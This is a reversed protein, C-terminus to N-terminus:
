SGTSDGRGHLKRQHAKLGAYSKCLKGCEECQFFEQVPLPAERVVKPLFVCGCKRCAWLDNELDLYDQFSQRCVPCRDDRAVTHRSATKM